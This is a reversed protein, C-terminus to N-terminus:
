VYSDAVYHRETWASCAPDGRACRTSLMVFRDVRLHSHIIRCQLSTDGLRLDHLAITLFLLCVVVDETLKSM